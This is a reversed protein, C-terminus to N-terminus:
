AGFDYVTVPIKQEILNHVILPEVQGWLGGALGCGIRPMHVSASLEKAKIALKHLCDNLHAYRIPPNGNEDFHVRHQAIMNAVWTEPDVQVLQIEGLAFDKKSAYWARYAAEPSFGYARWRRSVAVVFGSGWGGIDNCIHAVIKNGEGIPKTADGNVYNITM